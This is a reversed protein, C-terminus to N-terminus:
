TTVAAATRWTGVTPLSGSTPAMPASSTMRKGSRAPSRQVCISLVMSVPMSKSPSPRWSRALTRDSTSTIPRSLTVVGTALKGPLRCWRVVSVMTTCSVDATCAMVTTVVTSSQYAGSMPGTRVAMRVVLWPM